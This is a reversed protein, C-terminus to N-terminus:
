AELLDFIAVLYKEILQMLQEPSGSLIDEPDGERPDNRSVAISAGSGPSWPTAHITLPSQEHTVFYDRYRVIEEDVEAALRVLDAPLTLEKQGAYTELNQVVKSHRALSAGRGQGHFHEVAQGAKDLLIKAFLYFTEIRLHVLRTLTEREELLAIEAPTSPRTRDRPARELERQWSFNQGLARAAQQYERVSVELFGLLRELGGLVASRVLADERSAPGQAIALTRIRDHLGM